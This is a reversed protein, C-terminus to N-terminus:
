SPCVSFWRLDRNTHVLILHNFNATCVSRALFFSGVFNGLLWRHPSDEIYRSIRWSPCPRSCLAGVLAYWTIVFPYGQLWGCAPGQQHDCSLPHAQQGSHEVRQQKPLRGLTALKQPPWYVLKRMSLSWKRIYTKEKKKWQVHTHEQHTYPLTTYTPYYPLIQLTPIYHLTPNTLNPQLIQLTQQIKYAHQYTHIYTHLCHIFCSRLIKPGSNIRILGDILVARLNAADVVFNQFCSM